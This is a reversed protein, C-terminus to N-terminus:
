LDLKRTISELMEDMRNSGPRMRMGPAGHEELYNLGEQVAERERGTLDDAVRATASSTDVTITFRKSKM